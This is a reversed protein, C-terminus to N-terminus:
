QYDACLSFARWGTCALPGSRELITGSWELDVERQCTRQACYPSYLMLLTMCHQSKRDCFLTSMNSSYAWNGTCIFFMQCALAIWSYTRGGSNFALQAEHSAAYATVPFLLVAILYGVAGLRFTGITGLRAQLPVYCTFQLLSVSIAQGSLAKGIQAPSFQPGGLRIPTYLFLPMLSTICMSTGALFGYNILVTRVRPTVLERMALPKAEQQLLPAAETNEVSVRSSFLPKRSPLTQNYTLGTLSFAPLSRIRNQEGGQPLISWSDFRHSSFSEGRCM